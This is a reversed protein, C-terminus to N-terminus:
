SATHGSTNTFNGRGSHTYIVDGSGSTHGTIFGGRWNFVGSVSVARGNNQANNGTITGNKMTFISSISGKRDVRVGGGYEITSADAKNNNIDGSKM